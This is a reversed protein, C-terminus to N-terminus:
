LKIVKSSHICRRSWKGILISFAGVSWSIRLTMKVLSAMKCILYLLCVLSFKLYNKPQLVEPKDCNSIFVTKQVLPFERIVETVSWHTLIM